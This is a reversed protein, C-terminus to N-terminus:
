TNTDGQREEIKVLTVIHRIATRKRLLPALACWLLVVGAISYASWIFPAHNM